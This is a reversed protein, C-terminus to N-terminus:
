PKGHTSRFSRCRGCAWARSSNSGRPLPSVIRAARVCLHRSPSSFFMDASWHHIQSGGCTASQDHDPLDDKEVQRVAGCSRHARIITKHPEGPDRTVTRFLTRNGFKKELCFCASRELFVLVSGLCELNVDVLLSLTPFPISALVHKATFCKFMVFGHAQKGRARPLSLVFRSGDIRPFSFLSLFLTGLLKGCATTAGSTKDNFAWACGTRDLEVSVWCVDRQLFSISSDSSPRLWDDIGVHHCTSSAGAAASFHQDLRLGFAGHCSVPVLVVCGRQAVM